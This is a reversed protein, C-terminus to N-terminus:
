RSFNALNTTQLGRKDEGDKAMRTRKHSIIMIKSNKRDHYVETKLNQVQGFYSLIGHCLGKMDSNCRDLILVKEYM